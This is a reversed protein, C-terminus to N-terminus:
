ASHLLRCEARTLSHEISCPVRLHTDCGTTFKVAAYAKM